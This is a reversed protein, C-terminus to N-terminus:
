LLFRLVLSALGGLASVVNGVGGSRRQARREKEEAALIQEIGTVFQSSLQHGSTNGQALFMQQAQQGDAIAGAEDGLQLRAIGRALVANSFDPQRGLSQNFYQIAGSYNGRQAEALGWLYVQEVSVANEPLGIARWLNAGDLNAGTLNAGYLYAERLDAGRLDAGSLDAGSLNAYSLVAGTLNAGQLNAGQLNARNLNALSLDSRSMDVGSLNTFVLGARHLDCQQCQRSSLLRQIHELNEARAPLAVGLAALLGLSALKSNM